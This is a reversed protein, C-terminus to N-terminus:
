AWLSGPSSVISDVSSVTWASGMGRQEVKLDKSDPKSQTMHKTHYFPHFCSSNSRLPNFTLHGYLHHSRSNQILKGNSSYCMVVFKPASFLVFKNEKLESPFFYFILRVLTLCLTSLTTEEPSEWTFENRAEEVELSQHYKKIEPQVLGIQAEATM